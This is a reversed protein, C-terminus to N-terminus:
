GSHVAVIRIDHELSAGTYCEEPKGTVSQRFFFHWRFETSEHQDPGVPVEARFDELRAVDLWTPEADDLSYGLQIGTNADGGSVTFVVKQAGRGVLAGKVRELEFEGGMACLIDLEEGTGLSWQREALLIDPSTEPQREDRTPAGHDRTEGSGACGATLLVATVFAMKWVEGM